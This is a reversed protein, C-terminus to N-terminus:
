WALDSVWSGLGEAGGDGMGYEDDGRLRIGELLM